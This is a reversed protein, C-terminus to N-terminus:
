RLRDSRTWMTLRLANRITARSPKAKRPPNWGCRSRQAQIQQGHEHDLFTADGTLYLLDYAGDKGYELKKQWRAEQSREGTKKDLMRISGAGAATAKQAGKTDLLHLEPAEIENGEKLAM